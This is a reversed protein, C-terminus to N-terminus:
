GSTSTTGSQPSTGSQPESTEFVVDAPLRDATRRIVSRVAKEMTAASAFRYEPKKALARDLLLQLDRVEPWDPALPPPPAHIVRSVITQVDPGTFPKKKTLLMYLIVGVSFLDARPDLKQGRAQEPSMYGPTGVLGRDNVGGSLSAVAFGTLKVQRDETLLVNSPKINRHVVGSRHLYDLGVCIEAVIGLRERLALEYEAIITKLDKARVFESVMFPDGGETQDLEYVKPISPHQLRAM